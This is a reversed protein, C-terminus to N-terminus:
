ETEGLDWCREFGFVRGVYLLVAHNSAPRSELKREHLFLNKEQKMHTSDLQTTQLKGGLLPHTSVDQYITLYASERPNIPHAYPYTSLYYM